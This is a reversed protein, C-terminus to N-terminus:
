SVSVLEHSWVAVWSTDENNEAAHPYVFDDWAVIPVNPNSDVVTGLAGVPPGDLERVPTALLRVRDGVKFDPM